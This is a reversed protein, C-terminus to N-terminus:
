GISGRARPEAAGRPGKSHDDGLSEEHCTRSILCAPLDGLDETEKLGTMDGSWWDKGAPRFNSVIAGKTLDYRMRITGCAESTDTFRLDGQFWSGQPALTGSATRGSDHRETFSLDDGDKGVEYAATGDYRWRGVLLDKAGMM